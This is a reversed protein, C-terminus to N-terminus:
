SKTKEAWARLRPVAADLAEEPSSTDLNGIPAEFAELAEIAAERVDYDPDRLASVVTSLSSRGPVERDAARKLLDYRESPRMRAWEAFLRDTGATELHRMVIGFFMSSSKATVRGRWRAVSEELYRGLAIRSEECAAFTPEAFFDTIEESTGTHSDGYVPDFGFNVGAYAIADYLAQRDGSEPYEWLRRMFSTVVCIAVLDRKLLADTVEEAPERPGLLPELGKPDPREGFLFNHLAYCRADDRPYIPDDGSAYARLGAVLDAARWEGVGDWKAENFRKRFGEAADADFAPPPV